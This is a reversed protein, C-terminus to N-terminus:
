LGNQELLREVDKQTVCLIQQLPRGGYNESLEKLISLVNARLYDQRSNSSFFGPSNKPERFIFVDVKGDEHVGFMIAVLYWLKSM